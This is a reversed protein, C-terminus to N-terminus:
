AAHEPARWRSRARRLGALWRSPLFLACFLLWTRPQWPQSRLSRLFSIGAETRQGANALEEGLWRHLKAFRARLLAPKLTIRGRDAALATEVVTLANRAIHVGYAPATLQDAVGVTYLVTPVDILAVPGAGCARLHFDYDEGSFQLSENFGGVKLQRSRRLLVTSTHVMNGMIMESFIEGWHLNLLVPVANRGILESADILMSYSFPGEGAFWRYAGYMTRLHRESVIQGSKDVASMDSWIMGVDALQRLCALQLRLKWPLWADDSDLFAIFDGRAERLGRNRASSVGGNRQHVYRLRPERAYRRSIAAGTDDSSGDDVVIVEVDRHSQNLASDIARGVIQARNFTPIIVSVLERALLASRRASGPGDALSIITSM